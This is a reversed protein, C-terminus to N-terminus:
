KQSKWNKKGRKMMSERTMLPLSYLMQFLALSQVWTSLDLVLKACRPFRYTCGSHTAHTQSGCSSTLQVLFLLVAPPAGPSPDELEWMPGQMLHYNSRIRRFCLEKHELDLPYFHFSDSIPSPSGLTLLASIVTSLGQGCQIGSPQWVGNVKWRQRGAATQTPLSHPTMCGGQSLSNGESREASEAPIFFVSSQCVPSHPWLVIFSLSHKFPIDVKKGGRLTDPSMEELLFVSGCHHKGSRAKLQVRIINPQICSYSLTVSSVTYHCRCTDKNHVKFYFKRFFTM